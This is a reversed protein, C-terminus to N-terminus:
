KRMNIELREGHSFGSSKDAHESSRSALNSVNVLRKGDSGGCALGLSFVLAYLVDEVKELRRSGPLSYSIFRASPRGGGAVDLVVESDGVASSDECSACVDLLEV